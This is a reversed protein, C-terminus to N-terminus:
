IKEYIVALAQASKEWDYSAAARRSAESLKLRLNFNTLLEIVGQAFAVETDAVKVVPRTAFDYGEVGDSTSVIPFGVAMAQLLKINTGSKVRVPLIFIDAEEVFSLFDSSKDGRFDIVSRFDDLWAPRSASVVVLKFQPLKKRVLPMVRSLFWRVAESNQQYLLDGTFLARAESQKIIQKVHNSYFVTDVGNPVFFCNKAGAKKMIGLDKQSVALNADALRWLAEEHRRLKWVDYAMLSKLLWNGQRETYKQYIQYEINENGLVVKRGLKKIFPLVWAVGLFELHILDYSGAVLVEKLETVLRRNFYSVALLPKDSFGARFLNRPDWVWRRHFCRLESVFSRLEAVQDLQERNRYFSFLGIEFRRSLLKMLHYARLKGGSSPPYPLDYTLWLVRM